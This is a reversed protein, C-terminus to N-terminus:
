APKKPATTPAPQPAAPPNFALQDAPIDVNVEPTYGTTRTSKYSDLTRDEEVKRLLFTSRDIWLTVVEDKVTVTSSGSTETYPTARTKGKIRFCAANALVDDAIREPDVLPPGSGVVAPLLMGPVRLSAGTSIGSAVDLAQQLSDSRRVGPKADWWSQVESGNWWLICLSAGEGLGSDTFQFRFPGNRVFATAFPVDSGFSSDEMKARTKVKGTDRYSRCGAYTRSMTLLIKMPSLSAPDVAPADQAPATAALALGAALLPLLRGTATRM